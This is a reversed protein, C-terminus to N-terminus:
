GRTLNTNTVPVSKASLKGSYMNRHRGRECKDRMNDLNTGSRLHNPNCCCPTDCSHLVHMKEPIPGKFEQYAARHARITKRVSPINVIGYGKYDVGLMWIWCGSETIIEVNNLLHQKMSINKKNWGGM